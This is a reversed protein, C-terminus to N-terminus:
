MVTGKVMQKLFLWLAFKRMSSSFDATRSSIFNNAEFLIGCVCFALIGLLLCSRRRKVYGVIMNVIFFSRNM